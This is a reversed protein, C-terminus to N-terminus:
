KIEITDTRTSEVRDINEGRYDFVMSFTEVETIGYKLYLDAKNDWGNLYKSM